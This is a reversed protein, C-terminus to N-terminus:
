LLHNLVLHIKNMLITGNKSGIMKWNKVPVAVVVEGLLSQYSDQVAPDLRLRQHAELTKHANVEAEHLSGVVLSWQHLNM